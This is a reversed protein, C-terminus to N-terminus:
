TEVAPKGYHMGTGRDVDYKGGRVLVLVGSGVSRSSKTCPM